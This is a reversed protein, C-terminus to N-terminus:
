RFSANVQPKTLVVLCWIGIPLGVLEGTVIALVSSTIAFGFSELKKMRLAGIIIVIGVGLFATAITVGRTAHADHTAFFLDSQVQATIRVPRDTYRGDLSNRM